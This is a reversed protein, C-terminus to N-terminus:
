VINNKLFNYIMTLYRKQEEENEPIYQGNELKQYFEPLDEKKFISKLTLNFECEGESTSSEDINILVDFKRKEM